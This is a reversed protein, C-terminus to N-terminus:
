RSIFWLMDPVSGYAGPNPSYQYYLKNSASLACVALAGTVLPVLLVNSSSHCLTYLLIYPVSRTCKHLAFWWVYYDTNSVFNNTIYFNFSSNPQHGHRHQSHTTQKTFSHLWYRFRTQNPHSFYTFYKTCLHIQIAMWRNTAATAYNMSKSYWHMSSADLSLVEANHFGVGSSCLTGM